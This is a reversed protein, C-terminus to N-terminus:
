RSLLSEVAIQTDEIETRIWMLGPDV